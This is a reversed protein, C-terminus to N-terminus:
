MICQTKRLLNTVDKVAYGGMDNLTIRYLRQNTTIKDLGGYKPIYPGLKVYDFVVSGKRLPYFWGPLKPRGSYWGIRIDPFSDRIMCALDYVAKPDGDGGM